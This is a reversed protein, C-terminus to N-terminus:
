QLISKQVIQKPKRIPMLLLSRVQCHLLCLLYPNSGQIPFTGQLLARCDVGTNKGPSDRHFSSGPPDYLTPCSQTVLCLVSLVNFPLSTVKSVFTSMTLAITKGTTMYPHSLQVELGYLFSLVLSHISFFFFLVFCFLSHISKFQTMPSSEQSDRPNCPSWVLWDYLTHTRFIWQFSQHQLQFEWYKPWRILLVSESSFVRIRPFISPLLLLPRCLISPQIADGVWHVHTQALEPLHLVPFGPTSCDM